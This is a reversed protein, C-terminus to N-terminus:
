KQTGGAWVWRILHCTKPGSIISEQPTETSLIATCLPFELWLIQSLKPNPKRPSFFFILMQFPSQFLVFSLHGLFFFFTDKLSWDEHPLVSYWMKYGLREYTKFISVVLWSFMVSQFINFGEMPSFWTIGQITIQNKKGKRNM